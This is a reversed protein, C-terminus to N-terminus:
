FANSRLPIGRRTKGGQYFLFLIVIVFAFFPLLLSVQGLNIFGHEAAIRDAEDMGGQVEVAWSDSYGMVVREEEEAKCESVVTESNKSWSTAPSSPTTYSGRSGEACVVSALSLYLALFTVIMGQTFAM